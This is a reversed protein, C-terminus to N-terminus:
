AGEWAQPYGYIPRDNLESILGGLWCCPTAARCEQAGICDFIRIWFNSAVVLAASMVSNTETRLSCAEVTQVSKFSRTANYADTCGIAVRCRPGVGRSFLMRIIGGLSLPTIFIDPYIIKHLFLFYKSATSVYAALSIAFECIEPISRANVFRELPHSCSVTDRSRLM